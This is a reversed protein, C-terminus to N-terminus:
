PDKRKMLVRSKWDFYLIPSYNKELINTEDSISYYYDYSAEPQPEKHYPALVLWDLKQTVRYYEFSPAFWWHTNLTVPKGPSKKKELWSIIETTNADYWWEYSHTFNATRLLHVFGLVLILSAYIAHMRRRHLILQYALGILCLAFLPYLSLATRGSLYPTGLLYHQALGIAITILFIFLFFLFPSNYELWKNKWSRVAMVLMIALVIFIPIVFFYLPIGFHGSDYLSSVLLTKITNEYFGESGWFVFQNTEMMKIVPRYIAGALIISVIAINLLSFLNNNKSNSKRKLWLVAVLLGSLALYFHITTFNCYVAAAALVMAALALRPRQERIFRLGFYISAMMFSISLGYGRALSFFDLLFPNFNLAVLGSMVFLLNRNLFRLIALGSCFYLIFGLVNPLRVSLPHWGFLQSCLKVLLTNLIHNNPIPQAYSVIDSVSQTSFVLCTGSEDHTIPLIIARALIYGFLLIGTFLPLSKTPIFSTL